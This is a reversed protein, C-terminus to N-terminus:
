RGALQPYKADIDAKCAMDAMQKCAERVLRAAGLSAKGSRVPGELLRRVELPRGDLAAQQADAMTSPDHPPTAPTPARVRPKTDASPTASTVPPEDIPDAVRPQPPLPDVSATEAANPTLAPPPQARSPKTRTAAVIATGILVALLPLVVALAITRDRAPRPHTSVTPMAARPIPTSTNQVPRTSPHPEPPIPTMRMTKVRPAMKQTPPRRAATTKQTTPEDEPVFAPGIMAETEDDDGPDVSASRLSHTRLRTEPTDPPPAGQGPDTPDELVVSDPGSAEPRAADALEVSEHMSKGFVTLHRRVEEGYLGSEEEAGTQINQATSRVRSMLAAIDAPMVRLAPPHAEGLMRQLIAGTSPRKDPDQELTALVVEDLAKPVHHSVASPPVIVPNRIMNLIEIENKGSFLRRGTLMEWVVLGVAYLDARRDVTRASRAQEPPMYALKGRLSGTKTQGAGQQRAKAIGFDIIRVNGKYSVLVNHPSVDRHVIGLPAGDEDTAEHAGHLGSAMQMGIAVALDVPIGGKHRLVGIVQALSAGQVYEMVLYYRGGDEGFEEVRVVNPDDIRASLKAEDIFMRCFRKNQALHDHIVKIAVPRSFGAPGVRRGLYLVGM